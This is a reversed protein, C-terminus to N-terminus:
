RHVAIHPEADLGHQAGVAGRHDGGEGGTRRSDGPHRDDTPGPLGAVTRAWSCARARPATVAAVGGHAFGEDSVGGSVRTQKNKVEDVLGLVARVARSGKKHCVRINSAAGHLVVQGLSQARLDDCERVVLSKGGM